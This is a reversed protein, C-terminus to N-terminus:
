VTVPAALPFLVVVATTTSRIKTMLTLALSAPAFSIRDSPRHILRHLHVLAQACPVTWEWRLTLRTLKLTM